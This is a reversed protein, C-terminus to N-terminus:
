PVEEGCGGSPLIKDSNAESCLTHGKEDDVTLFHKCDCLVFSFFVQPSLVIRDIFGVHLLNYYGPPM